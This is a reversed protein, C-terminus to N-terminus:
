DDVKSIKLSRISEKLITTRENIIKNSTYNINWM